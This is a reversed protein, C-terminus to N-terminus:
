TGSNPNTPLCEVEVYPELKRYSVAFEIYPHDREVLSEAFAESRFITSWPFSGSVIHLIVDVVKSNYFAKEGLNHEV